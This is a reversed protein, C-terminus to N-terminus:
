TREDLKKHFKHPFFSGLKQAGDGVSYLAPLDCAQVAMKYADKTSPQRWQTIRWFNAPFFVFIATNVSTLVTKTQAPFASCISTLMKQHNKLLNKNLYELLKRM